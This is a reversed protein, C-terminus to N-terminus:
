SKRDRITRLNKSVEITEVYARAATLEGRLESSHKKLVEVKETNGPEQERHRSESLELQKRLIENQALAESLATRVNALENKLPDIRKNSQVDLWQDIEEALAFVVGKSRRTPRRVPLGLEREWRQVTRVGKNLYRAIEKWSTLPTPM